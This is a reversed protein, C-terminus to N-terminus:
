SSAVHWQQHDADVGLIKSHHGNMLIMVRNFTHHPQRPKAAGTRPFFYFRSCSSLIILCVEDGYSLPELESLLHAVQEADDNLM